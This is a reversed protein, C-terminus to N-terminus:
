LKGEKGEKDEQKVEKKHAKGGRGGFGWGIQNAVEVRVGLDEAFTWVLGPNKQFMRGVVAVDLGENLLDNAQKGNTISGVTSVAVKDGMKDKVAKAFPAQYGPGSKVKQNAHNGGSSVDILDVGLPTVMEAFKVTDEIKWSDFSEHELWDTASIRVFLPMDKPMNSRTLEVIERTLRTRNEFSGGYEDTRKNTAPSVFSHLLYGHANHVEIVDFGCRVARNVAGVWARKLTAIDEKTMEKPHPYNEHFPIASPGLVDDPWGNVEKSAVNGHSLWPAVTSAKRGAHSLQIGINQGQSHAFEVIRKLPEMQSDLWLGCDEPTIRGEPTVSTAEVM